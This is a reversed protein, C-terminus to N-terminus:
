NKAEPDGAKDIDVTPLEITKEETGVTVDATNVDFTPAQGGSTEVKVDPLKTEATQDIDILGFAFAGVVLAIVVIIAGLWGPFSSSRTEVVRTEHIPENDAM